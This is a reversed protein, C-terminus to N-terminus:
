RRVARKLLNEMRVRLAEEDFPKYVYDDAGARLADLETSGDGPAGLMIM